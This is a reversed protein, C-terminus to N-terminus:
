RGEKACVKAENKRPKRKLVNLKGLICESVLYPHSSSHDYESAIEAAMRVGKIREVMLLADLDERILESNLRRDRGLGTHAWKLIFEDRTM